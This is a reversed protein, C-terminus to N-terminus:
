KQISVKYVYPGIEELVVVDGPAADFQRFFAGIWGRSRFFKKEGDIDTVAPAEGGWELTVCQDAAAAKNSGGIVERPFRELCSRLYFHNNRINAENITVEIRRGKILTPAARPTASAGQSPPTAVATSPTPAGEDARADRPGLTRDLIADRVQRTVAEAAATDLTVWTVAGSPHRYPVPTELAHIDALFWPTHWKAVTGSRILDAPIRHHEISALMGIPTLPNGVGTLRAAGVVAGSGKKIMGFWGRHSTHSSRMEWTKAGTLIYNIWPEAIVLAKGINM